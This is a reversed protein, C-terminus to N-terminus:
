IVILPHVYFLVSATLNYTQWRAVAPLDGNPERYEAVVFCKM